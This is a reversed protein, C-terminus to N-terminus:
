FCPSLLDLNFTITDQTLLYYETVNFYLCYSRLEVISSLIQYADINSKQKWPVSTITGLIKNCICTYQVVMAKYIYHIKNANEGQM